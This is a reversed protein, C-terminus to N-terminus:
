GSRRQQQTRQRWEVISRGIVEAVAPVVANGYAKLANRRGRVLGPPLGDALRCISPQSLAPVRGWAHLDDPGPPWPTDALAERVHAINADWREAQRRLDREPQFGGGDGGADSVRWAVVFLRDRRHPAGVASAPLCDWEADYGCAALDGLVTGLGRALLASVNEVVVFRPRLLRIIRAMERWLGSHEGGIGVRKGANSIDTCPFGGCIIDVPQSRSRQCRLVEGGQALAERAGAPVM